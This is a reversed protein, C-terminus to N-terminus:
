AGAEKKERGHDSGKRRRKEQKKMMRRIAKLYNKIRKKMHKRWIFPARM